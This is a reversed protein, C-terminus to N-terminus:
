KADGYAKTIEYFFAVAAPMSNTDYHENVAHAGGTKASAKGGTYRYVNDCIETYYRSDTGGFVLNPIFVINDDHNVQCTIRKLLDYAWNDDPSVRPPNHGKLLRFKVNEPLVKRFHAELDELTQGPLIRSNTVVSAREPLINAQASGQAMTPTTTTRVATSMMPVKLVEEVLEDWNKDPDKMLEGLRGPTIASQAKFMKVAPECKFTPMPNEELLWMAYGLEGLANHKPPMAAHGGGQEVYFEYDAYGKECVGVAAVNFGNMERPGGGEDFVMGFKIGRAKLEDVIIRCAAGPGGMIEENYGFILYVDHDPVFGDAILGEVAELECIMTAKCDSVGRGWLVGEEDLYPEFPPHTWKTLDGVPVVDQHAMFMIPLKDSKGTGKWHLMLACKGIVEKEMVRFVNPYTKELYKHLELFNEVPLDDANVTSTTDFSSAGALHEAFLKSDYKM